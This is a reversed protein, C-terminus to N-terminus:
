KPHTVDFDALVIDMIPDEGKIYGKKLHYGFLSGTTSWYTATLGGKLDKILYHLPSNLEREIMHVLIRGQTKSLKRLPDEFEKKLARQLKRTHKRQRRRSMSNRVEELERFVRIAKVAYPYVKNAYRRYRRYLAEEERSKFRRKSTISVDDLEAMYLTDDETIIATVVEGNIEIKERVGESSQACVELMGLFFVTFILM